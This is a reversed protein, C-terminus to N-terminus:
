YGFMGDFLLWRRDAGNKTVSRGFAQALDLENLKTYEDGPIMQRIRRHTDKDWPEGSLDLKTEDLSTLAVTADGFWVKPIITRGKYIGRIEMIARAVSRNKILPKLAYIEAFNNQNDLAICPIDLTTAIDAHFEDLIRDFKGLEDSKLAKNADRILFLWTSIDPLLCYVEHLWEDLSKCSDKIAREAQILRLAESELRDVDQLLKQAGAATGGTFVSTRMGSWFSDDAIWRGRWLQDMFRILEETTQTRALTNIANWLLRIHLQGGSLQIDLLHRLARLYKRLTVPQGTVSPYIFPQSAMGMRVDSDLYIVPYPVVPDADIVGALEGKLPANWIAHYKSDDEAITKTQLEPLLFWCLRGVERSIIEDIASLSM